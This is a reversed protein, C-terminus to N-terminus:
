IDLLEQIVFSLIWYCSVHGLHIVLLSENKMSILFLGAAVTPAVVARKGLSNLFLPKHLTRNMAIAMSIYSGILSSTQFIYSSVSDHKSAAVFNTETSLNIRAYMNQLFGWLTFSPNIKSRANAGILKM